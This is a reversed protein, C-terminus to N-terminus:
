VAHYDVSVSEKEGWRLVVGNSVLEEALTVSSAASAVEAAVELTMHRPHQSSALLYAVVIAVMALVALALITMPRRM